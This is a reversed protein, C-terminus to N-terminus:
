QQTCRHDHWHIFAPPQENSISLSGWPHDPRIPNSSDSTGPKSSLAMANGTAEWLQNGVMQNGVMDVGVLELLGVGGLALGM